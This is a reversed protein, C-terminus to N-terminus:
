KRVPPLIFIRMKRERDERFYELRKQVHVAVLPAFLVALIMVGDSITV